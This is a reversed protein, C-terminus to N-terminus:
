YKIQKQKDRKFSRSNVSLLVFNVSKNKETYDRKFTEKDTQTPTHRDLVVRNESSPKLTVQM